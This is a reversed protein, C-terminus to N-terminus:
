SLGVIRGQRDLDMRLYGPTSGLGPMTSIAGALLYVFGAGASLYAARVPFEFGEPAGKLKPDHSLSLHTKAMCVPLRGHGGAELKALQEEAQPTYRVSGARYVRKALREIKEKLTRTLPYLPRFRSPEAAAARIARALAAGGAGGKAHVESIAADFAGAARAQACVFDLEERTDGPFRNVAVVAPVGHAAVIDLHRRLNALGAELAARNPKVLGSDLPRGPVVDFGGAHMKLARLTTVVVAAAPKLGGARAKINCFKEFGMDAGFGAETVVIQALKLAIRDALISSNGHAINAFPGAHVFCPTHETTQLLTPEIADRLLVAMAGAVGLDEATVPRGALDYAMVVRGIRRRLDRLDRSLALIAMLESAVAIDFGTRRPVGNENKEAGPAALGIEIERLARDNLDLVRRWVIGRPDIALARLGTRQEFTEAGLRTEHYLRSDLAAAGLNHAASIAHIDGTLHLNFDEMPVVQSRGGGAAGGKIGFVPGMSPQRICTFVKVGLRALALSAGITTVTKGEGLPTPTLATVVVLKGDPRDALRRLISLRVKAKTRGYPELEAPRIGARSAIEEIPRLRTRRALELDTLM